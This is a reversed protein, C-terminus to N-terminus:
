EKKLIKAKNKLGTVTITPEGYLQLVASDQAYLTIAEKVQMYADSSDSLNIETTTVLAEKATLKGNGTLTLNATAITGDLLLKSTDSVQAILTDVIAYMKLTARGDLTVNSSASKTKLTGDADSFLEIDIAGTYSLDLEFKSSKGATLVLNDGNILGEAKLRAKNNLHIEAITSVTITIKFKKKKVIRHTATIKLTNDEITFQIVDILNDDTEISYANTAGQNLEIDFDGDIDIIDFSEELAVEKLTVIGSGKIKPLQQGLMSMSMFLVIVIWLKKM